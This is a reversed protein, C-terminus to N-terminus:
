FDLIDQPFLLFHCKQAVFNSFHERPLIDGSDRTQLVKLPRVKRETRVDVGRIVVVVFCCCLTCAFCFM